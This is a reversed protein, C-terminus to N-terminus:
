FLGADSFNEAKIQQVGGVFISAGKANKYDVTELSFNRKTRLSGFNQFKEDRCTSVNKTSGQIDFGSQIDGENTFNGVNFQFLGGSFVNKKNIFQGSELIFNNEAHLSLNNEVKGSFRLYLNKSASLSGDSYYNAGDLMVQPATIQAGDGLKINTKSRLLVTDEGHIKQNLKLDHGHIEVRSANKMASSLKLKGETYIGVISSNLEGNLHFDINEFGQFLFNKQATSIFGVSQQDDVDVLYFSHDEQLLSNDFTLM